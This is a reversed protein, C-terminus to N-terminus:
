SRALPTEGGLNMTYNKARRDDLVLKRLAAM